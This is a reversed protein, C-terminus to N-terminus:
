ASPSMADKIIVSESLRRLATNRQKPMLERGTYVIVPVRDDRPMTKIQEILEVGDIDPLGLDVIVCDFHGEELARSRKPQRHVVATVAIEGSDILNAM